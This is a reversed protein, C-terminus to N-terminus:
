IGDVLEQMAQKAAAELEQAKTEILAEQEQVMYNTMGTIWYSTGWVATDVAVKLEAITADAKEDMRNKLDEKALRIAEEIDTLAKNTTAELESNVFELAEIGRDNTHAGMEQDAYAAFENQRDRIVKGSENKIKDFAGNIYGELEEKKGNISNVHEVASGEINTKANATKSDGYAVIRNSADFKLDELEEGLDDMKGEMYGVYETEADEVAQGLQADFWAKLKSGADSAGFAVSAGSVLVFAAAVAVVKSKMTKLM